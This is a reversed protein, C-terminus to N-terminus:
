RNVPRARTRGVPVVRNELRGIGPIEVAVVIERGRPSGPVPIAEAFPALGHLAKLHDVGRRPARALTRTFRDAAARGLKSTAVPAGDVSLVVTRGSPDFDDATAVCPGVSTGIVTAKGGRRALWTNALTYGFVARDGDLGDGGVIWAVEPRCLLRGSGAPRTIPDEPGFLPVGRGRGPILPILMRPRAVAFHELASPDELAARAADMTTGGSRAVLRELTEPFAPHGVADPLDVLTGGVWAALRRTGGRDYTSLRM